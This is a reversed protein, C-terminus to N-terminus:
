RGRLEDREHGGQRTAIADDPLEVPRGDGWIGASALHLRRGRGRRESDDQHQIGHPRLQQDYVPSSWSRGACNRYETFFPM